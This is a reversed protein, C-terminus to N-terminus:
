STLDKQPLFLTFTSGTGEESLLRINGGHARAMALSYSLGIGFGKVNHINGTPVRYFREFVRGQSEEAIGIGEDQVDVCIGGPVNRTTVRINPAQPSYKNANDLLNLLIGGLHMEDGLVMTHSADPRYTIQGGRGEVQLRIREVQDSIIRDLDLAQMDLKLEGRELAAAQLVRDVQTKLRDNEQGIVKTYLGIRERTQMQPDNLVELALSITSIPTKLEHTMNNIFDTKMSSLRQQKRFAFLTIGFCCLVVMVLVGSTPLVFGMARLTTSKRDPFQLELYHHSPRIDHPFLQVRFYELEHDIQSPTAGEPLFDPFLEQRAIAYIFPEDIDRRLLEERLLTDLVTSDLREHVPLHGLLLRQVIDRVYNQGAEEVPFHKKLVIQSDGRAMTAQVSKESIWKGDVLEGSGFEQHIIQTALSDSLLSLPNGTPGDDGQQAPLFAEDWLSLPFRPIGGLRGQMLAISIERDQLREVVAAMASKVRSRFQGERLAVANQVWFWQVALLGILAVSMILVLLRIHTKKV